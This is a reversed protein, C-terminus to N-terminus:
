GRESEMWALVREAADDYFRAATGDLRSWRDMPLGSIVLALKKVRSLDPKPAEPPEVPPAIKARTGVKQDTGDWVFEGDAGVAFHTRCGCCFAGSYFAPDRAYTEALSQGMTTVVGCKLHRYSRRLPEVFGKAREEATLVVYDQQQGNDKLELHPGYETGGITEADQDNIRVKNTM